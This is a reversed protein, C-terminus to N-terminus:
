VPQPPPVGAELNAAGGSTLHLPTQPFHSYTRLPTLIVILYSILTGSPCLSLKRLSSSPTLGNTVLSDCRVTHWGSLYGTYCGLLTVNPAAATKLSLSEGLPTHEPLCQILRDAPPYVLPVSRSVAEVRALAASTSDHLLQLVLRTLPLQSTYWVVGREKETAAFATVRGRQCELKM